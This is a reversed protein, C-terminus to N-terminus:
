VSDPDSGEVAINDIFRLVNPDCLRRESQTPSPNEAQQLAVAETYCPLRFPKVPSCFFNPDAFFPRHRPSAPGVAQRIGHFSFKNSIVDATIM